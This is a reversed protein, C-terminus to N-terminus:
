LKLKQTLSDITSLIKMAENPVYGEGDHDADARNDFYERIEALVEKVEKHEQEVQKEFEDIAKEAELIDVRLSKNEKELEQVKDEAIRLADYMEEETMRM